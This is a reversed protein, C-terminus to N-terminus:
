VEQLFKNISLKKEKEAEKLKVIEDVLRKDFVKFGLGSDYVLGLMRGYMGVESTRVFYGKKKLERKIETATLKRERGM